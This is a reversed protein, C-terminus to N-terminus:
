PSLNTRERVGAAAEPRMWEPNVALLVEETVRGYDAFADFGAQRLIAAVLEYCYFASPDQWDRDPAIGIGFAGKFDYPTKAQALARGYQLGRERDPVLYDIQRVVTMGHLATICPTRRVGHLMHSEIVYGGDLIVAHSSHAPLYFNRPQAHRILLSVPNWDRRTFLVSIQNSPM